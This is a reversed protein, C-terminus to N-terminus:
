TGLGRGSRYNEEGGYAAITEARNKKRAVKEEPSLNTMEEEQKATWERKVAESYEKDRRAYEKEVKATDKKFQEFEPTFKGRVHGLEGPKANANHRAQNLISRIMVIKDYADILALRAASSSMKSMDPSDIDLLDDPISDLTLGEVIATKKSSSLKNNYAERVLKRLTGIDTKM